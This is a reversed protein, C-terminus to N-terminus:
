KQLRLPQGSREAPTACAKCSDCSGCAGGSELKRELQQARVESMGLARGASSFLRSLARKPAAPLFRWLAYATALGVIVAVILTQTDM